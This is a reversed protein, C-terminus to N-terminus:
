RIAREENLWFVPRFTVSTICALLPELHMDRVKVMVLGM